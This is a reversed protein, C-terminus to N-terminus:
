AAGSTPDAALRKSAEAWGWRLAPQAVSYLCFGVGVSIILFKLSACRAALQPWPSAPRDFLVFYLAVNELADLAAALWQLWALVVGAKFNLSNRPFREACWACAMAVTTSYAFLFLFDLGISFAAAMRAQADWAKLIRNAVVPDGAQELSVIGLPADGEPSTTMPSGVRAMVGVLTLTALLLAVFVRRAVPLPIRALPHRPMTRKGYQLSAVLSITDGSITLSHM